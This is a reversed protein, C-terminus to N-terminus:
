ARFLELRPFSRSLVSSAEISLWQNLVTAYVSRFDTTFKLDGSDLDTLSPRRGHLGGSVRDGILFMPAATGHDTGRSANEGVRRGFESFVMTTVHSSHGQSKLDRQFASMAQSFQRLLNEHTGPQNAHTDFSGLSAYYIRTGLGGTIMRAILSLQQGLRGGPYQVSNKAGAEVLRLRDSSLNANGTVHRLFDLTKNRPPADARNMTRYSAEDDNKGGARYGFSQPSEVAIGLKRKGHFAQPLDGGASFGVTAPAQGTCANDFYRGIWGTSEYTSSDVATHWIEMSRFHSRDPNPYGVGEIIAVEGLDYLQKLGALNAHLSVDDSIAIRRDPKVALQPRARFYADDQHPIVTNLGDNGGSLQVVLLIHDDKFGPLPAASGPEWGREVASARVTQLLFQPITLGATAVACNAMFERRTRLIPSKM